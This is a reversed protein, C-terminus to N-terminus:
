AAVGARLMDAVAANYAPDFHLPDDFGVAFYRRGTDLHEFRYSGDLGSMTERVIVGSGRDFLRVLRRAPLTGVKLTGALTGEGLLPMAPPYSAWEPGDTIAGTPPAFTLSDAYVTALGAVPDESLLRMARIGRPAEGLQVYQEYTASKYISYINPYEEWAVGDDSVELGIGGSYPAAYVGLYGENARLNIAALATATGFDYALWVPYAGGFSIWANIDIGDFAKDPTYTSYVVSASATGTNPITAGNPTYFWVDSVGVFSAGTQPASFVFRWHRYALM